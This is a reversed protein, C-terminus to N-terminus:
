NILIDAVKTNWNEHPQLGLAKFVIAPIDMISTPEEIKFNPEINAGTCSLFINMDKPHNSGHSKSNDGGGGHDSTAIILTEDYIGAEKLANVIKGVHEDSKEIQAYYEKSWYEYAHGAHDVDDLQVFLIDFDKKKIYEAIEEVLEDDSKSVKLCDASEEIIGYNIPGWSVFSALKIEPKLNKAVKMFSPYNSDEPFLKTSVIENTLKHKDPTVGHHLAGWCEGSISPFVTQCEFTSAGNLILDDLNPTNADKVGNGAGDLGIIVVRNCKKGM